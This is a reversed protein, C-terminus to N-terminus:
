VNIKLYNYSISNHVYWVITNWLVRHTQVMKFKALYSVRSKESFCIRYTATKTKKLNENKFHLFIMYNKDEYIYIRTYIYM